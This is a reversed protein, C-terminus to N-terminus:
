GRYRMLDSSRVCYPREAPRARRDASFDNSIIEGAAIDRRAILAMLELSLRCNADRRDAAMALVPDYIHRGNPHAITTEDAAGRWTVHELRMVPEGAAFPRLAFLSADVADRSEALGGSLKMAIISQTM